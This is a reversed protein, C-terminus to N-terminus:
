EGERPVIEYQHSKPRKLEAIEAEFKELEASSTDRSLQRFRRNKEVIKRRLAEAQEYDAGARIPFGVLMTPNVATIQGDIKLAYNGSPLGGGAIVFYEVDKPYIPTPPEPLRILQMQFRVRAGDRRFDTMLTQRDSDVEGDSDIQLLFEAHPLKLAQLLIRSARLYGYSSLHRGNETLPLSKWVGDVDHFGRPPDPGNIPPSAAGTGNLTVAETRDFLDVLWGGRRAALESIAQAYKALTPNHRSADALPRPPTEYQPPTFFVLRCELPSLDDLLKEYQATFEALGAEGAFSERTGYALFLLTPKLERILELQEDYGRVRFWVDDGSAGLNRFSVSIQPTASSLATELYGRDIERAFFTGGLFVVRDGDRLEFKPPAAQLTQNSLISLAFTVICFTFFRFTRNEDNM